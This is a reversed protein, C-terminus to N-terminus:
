VKDLDEKFLTLKSNKHSKFRKVDNYGIKNLNEFFLNKDNKSFSKKNRFKKIKQNLKHWFSIEKKIVKEM